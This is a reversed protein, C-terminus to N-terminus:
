KVPVISSVKGRNTIIKTREPGWSIIELMGCAAGIETSEDPDRGFMEIVASLPMGLEIRRENVASQWLAPDVDDPLNLENLVAAMDQDARALDYTQAYAGVAMYLASLFFLIKYYQYM